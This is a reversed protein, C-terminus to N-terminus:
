NQHFRPLLVDNNIQVSIQGPNQVSFQGVRPALNHSLKQNKGRNEEGKRPLIRRRLGPPSIPLRVPSLIWLPCGRAPEVGAEPVM